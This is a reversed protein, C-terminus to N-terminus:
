IEAVDITRPRDGAFYINWMEKYAKEINGAFRQTDFLPETLRNASLKRKLGQLKFRNHALHVVLEEYEGLSHTVLEPLGIANLLSASVRSAFHNGQVTVVPVDAWLADSSTTHGNYIRTDLVLDAFRHRALHNDKPLVEAFVLRDSHIGRSQAERKLNNQATSNMCLLWLVSEPVRNMIRMWTSFMVPEIKFFQSFSCFVFATDPLGLSRRSISTAEAVQQRENVQYTHPMYVPHESYYSAHEEPTVTKDTILYDFFDAGTTGPYGLYTVMIPAPRYACIAMRAGRTHGMLDVLIDVGDKYIIGAADRDSSYRIDRFKDSHQEIRKRYSTKDNPGYSYSCIQFAKRDHMGFLGVILHSVPHNRFDNSLYGITIRRNPRRSHVFSTDTQSLSRKIDRAWSKAIVLNQVPDLCRSINVLPMEPCREGKKFAKKNLLDLQQRISDLESWACVAELQRILHNYVDAHDPCIELSKRYCIIAEELSGLEELLNGLNNYAEAFEPVLYIAKKYCSAAEDMKGMEKLVIGISNYGDALGPKIQVARQFCTAAEDLRRLEKLAMGMNYYADCYDPYIEVAKEFCFVAKEEQKQERFANGLDCYTVACKPDLAIARKYSKVSANLRGQTRLASALNRWAEPYDEKLMLARKYCRVAEDTRGMDMLVKGLSNHYYPVSSTIGIAGMILNLAKENDKMQYAVVGLLHKADPDNPQIMLVKEYIKQAEVTKGCRHYRVGRELEEHVNLITSMECGM